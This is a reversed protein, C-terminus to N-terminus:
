DFKIWKKQEFDYKKIVRAPSGVAITYKPIDKNVISGAGIISGEGIRVGPMISVFEGIWVKNEIYVPAGFLERKDPEENPDSHIKGSYSGHNHDSIFVKSAILVQDGIEVLNIAAIHVYDNLQVNNGFKIMTKTTADKDFADLRLGVGTTLGKGFDINKWGRIYWPWRLIRANTIMLRSFLTDRLLRAFGIFGYLKIKNM